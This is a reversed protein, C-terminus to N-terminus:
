AGERRWQLRMAIVLLAIVGLLMLGGAFLTARHIGEAYPMELAINATIPRVPDWWSTPFQVVNGVVMLVAMTEGLARGGQVILADVTPQRLAPRVIRQVFTWRRLGVAAAALQLEAAVGRMGVYFAIVLGPLIMAALVICGALLCTGPAALEGLLPVVQVLGWFGIVVSPLGALLEMCRLVGQSWRPPAYFAAWIGTLWAVPGAILVAGLSVALSAVLMAALGFDGQDAEVAPHWAPRFLMEAWPVDVLAPWAEITLFGFISLVLVIPAVVGAVLSGKIGLETITRYM